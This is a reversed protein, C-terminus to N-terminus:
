VLKVSRASRRAAEELAIPSSVPGCFLHIGDERLGVLHSREILTGDRECAQVNTNGFFDVLRVYGEGVAFVYEPQVVEEPELTLVEYTGILFTDTNGDGDVYSVIQTGRAEAARDSLGDLLIGIGSGDTGFGDDIMDETVRVITSSANAGLKELAATIAATRKITESM